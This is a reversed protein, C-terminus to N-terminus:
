CFPIRERSRKRESCQRLFKIKQVILLGSFEIWFPRTKENMITVRNTVM